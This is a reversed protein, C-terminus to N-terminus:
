AGGVRRVEEDGADDLSQPARVYVEGFRRLWEVDGAEAREQVEKLFKVTEPELCPESPDGRPIVAEVEVRVVCPRAHIWRFLRVRKGEAKM